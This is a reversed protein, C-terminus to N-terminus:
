EVPFFGFRGADSGSFLEPTAFNSATSPPDINDFVIIQGVDSMSVLHEFFRERVPSARLAREDASLQGPTEVADRYTLLPSDLVIFGPHPLQREHCFQLVALKFAAHTLARVGKGNDTRLKGDIKLDYATTDFSVHRRGPFQWETLISSVVQCLDDVAKGPATLDVKERRSQKLRNYEDRKQSLGSRQEQLRSLKQTADRRAITGNLNSEHSRLLDSLHAIEDETQRADRDHSAYAEDLSGLEAELDDITPRLGSRLGKIKAIEALAATRIANVQETGHSSHQHEPPAGCLPCDRESGLNLLFGAEEIAELREIDSTYLRELERFRGLHARVENLRSEQEDRARLALSRRNSLERQSVRGADIQQRLAALQDDLDAQDASAEIASQALAIERDLDAILDDITALRAQKSVKFQPPTLRSKIASDDQGTLLLRFISRDLQEDPRSGAVPSQGSQISTEDVLCYRILHRFSLGVTQGSANKAIRRTGFGLQDLLYRSLTDPDDDSHTAGLTRLNSRHGGSASVLGHHLDFAGGKTSRALTIDGDGPVTLGLWATDYPARQEIDPLDKPQGGLMFNIAKLAFSKGTNSAGYVFSPRGSFHLGEPKRDDGTFLIHQLSIKGTM